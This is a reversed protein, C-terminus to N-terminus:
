LGEDRLQEAVLLLYLDRHMTPCHLFNPSLHCMLIPEEQVDFLARGLYDWEYAVIGGSRSALHRVYNSILGYDRYVDAPHVEWHQSTYKDPLREFTQGKFPGETPTLRCGRSAARLLDHYHSM